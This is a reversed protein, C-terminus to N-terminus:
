KETPTPVFVNSYAGRDTYTEYIYGGPVRMRRTIDNRTDNAHIEEWQHLNPPEPQRTTDICKQIRALAGSKTIIGSAYDSIASEILSRRLDEIKNM